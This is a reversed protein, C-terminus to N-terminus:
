STAYHRAWHDTIAPVSFVESLVHWRVDKIPDLKSKATPGTQIEGLGKTTGWYRVVCGRRIGANVGDSWYEGAVVWRRQLVVIRHEYQM